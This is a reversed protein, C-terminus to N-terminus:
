RYIGIKFIWDTRHFLRHADVDCLGDNFGTASTAVAQRLHSAIDLCYEMYSLEHGRVRGM